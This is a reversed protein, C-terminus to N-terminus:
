SVHLKEAALGHRVHREVLAQSRGERAVLLDGLRAERHQRQLAVLGGVACAGGYEVHRLQLVAEHQGVRQDHRAERRGYDRPGDEARLQGHRGQAVETPERGEVLLDSSKHRGADDLQQGARLYVWM